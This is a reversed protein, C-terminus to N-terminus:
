DDEVKSSFVLFINEAESRMNQDFNSVLHELSHRRIRTWKSIPLEGVDSVQTVTVQYILNKQKYHNNVNQKISFFNQEELFYNM